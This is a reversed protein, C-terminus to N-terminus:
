MKVKKFTLLEDRDLYIVEEKLSVENSGIACACFRRIAHRQRAVTFELFSKVVFFCRLGVLEMDTSNGSYESSIFVLRAEGGGM